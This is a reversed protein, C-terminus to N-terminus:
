LPYPPPPRACYSRCLMCQAIGLDSYSKANHLSDTDGQLQFTWLFKKGSLLLCKLPCNATFLSTQALGEQSQTHCTDKITEM